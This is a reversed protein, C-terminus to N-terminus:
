ALAGQVPQRRTGQRALLLGAGALLLALTTPESVAAGPTGGGFSFDDITFGENGRGLIKFGGIDATDHTIGVFYGAQGIGTELVQEDLGSFVFLTNLAILTAFDLQQNLWFGVRSVKTPFFVEMFAGRGFNTNREFDVTGLVNSGSAADGAVAGALNYIAPGNVGPTGGVTFKVGPAQDYVIANPDVAQGATYSTIRQPTRGLPASGEFDLVTLGQQFAAITAADRTVILGAHAATGGLVLPLALLSLLLSPLLSAPHKRQM